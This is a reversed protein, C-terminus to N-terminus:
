AKPMGPPSTMVKISARSFAPIRNTSHRWSVAPAIMAAPADATVPAGPKSTVVNPGPSALATFPM